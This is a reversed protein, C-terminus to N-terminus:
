AFRFFCWFLEFRFNSASSSRLFCLGRDVLAVALIFPVPLVAFSALPLQIPLHNLVPLTEECALLECRVDLLFQLARDCPTFLRYAVSVLTVKLYPNNDHLMQQGIGSGNKSINFVLHM